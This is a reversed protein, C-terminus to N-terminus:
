RAAAAIAVLRAVLGMVAQNQAPLAQAPPATATTVVALKLSPVAVALQAGYGWGWVVAHGHMQGTFWLYGYGTQEVPEVRWDPVAHTRQSEQVWGAPVVQVSGWRGANAMLWALKLLDRPRMRLGAHATPLGTRDRAWEVRGIGLPAWLGDAALAELNQGHIRALIPSLLGVAADNYVWRGAASSSLGQAFAVPDAASALAQYQFRYDYQLGAMGTLIQRLTAQNAPALPLAAAAEPLCQAVTRDLSALKGSHLSLGVLLSTVSKTVSHIPQLDDVKAGRYYREAVLAGDRALLLGRLARVSEGAQLVEALAAPALGQSEPLEVTWDAGAPLAQGLTAGWGASCWGTVGALLSRRTFVPRVQPDM